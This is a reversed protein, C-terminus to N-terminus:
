YKEQFGKKQRAPPTEKIAKRVASEILSSLQESDLQVIIM